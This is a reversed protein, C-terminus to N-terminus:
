TLKRDGSLDSEIKESLESDSTPRQPNKTTDTLLNKEMESFIFEKSYKRQKGQANMTHALSVLRKFGVVEWHERNEMAMLIERFKLYDYHKVVLPYKDFFPIIKEIISRRSDVSFNLVPHIGSKRYISGTQFVFKCLELVHRYHEHQYVQFVPNIMWGIKHFPHKIIAVSFSGERDVFGAIYHNLHKRKGHFLQQLIKESVNQNTDM